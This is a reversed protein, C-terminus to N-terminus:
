NKERWTKVERYLRTAINVVIWVIIIRLIWEILGSPSKWDGNSSKIKDKQEDSAVQVIETYHTPEDSYLGNSTYGVFVLKGDQYEENLGILGHNKSPSLLENEKWKGFWKYERYIDRQPYAPHQTTLDIEVLRRKMGGQYDCLIITMSTDTKQLFETPFSYEATKWMWRAKQLYALSDQPVVVVETQKNSYTIVKPPTAFKQATWNELEKTKTEFFGCSNLVLPFILLFLVLGIGFFSLWKKTFKIWTVKMEAKTETKM